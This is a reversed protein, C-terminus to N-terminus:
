AGAEGKRKALWAQFAAENEPVSFYREAAEALALCFFRLELEPIEAPNIKVREM